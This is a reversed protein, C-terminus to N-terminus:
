ELGKVESLRMRAQIWKYRKCDCEQELYSGCGLWHALGIPEVAADALDLVPFMAVDIMREFAEPDKKRQEVIKRIKFLL